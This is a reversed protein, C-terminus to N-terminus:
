YNSRNLYQAINKVVKYVFPLTVGGLLLAVMGIVPFYQQVYIYWYSICVLTILIIFDRKASAHNFMSVREKGKSATASQQVGSKHGRVGTHGSAMTNYLLNPLRQNLRVAMTCTVTSHRAKGASPPSLVILRRKSLIGVFRRAQLTISPARLEKRM